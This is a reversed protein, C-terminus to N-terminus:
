SLREIAQGAARERWPALPGLLPHVHRPSVELLPELVFARQQLRPHPLSLGPQELV